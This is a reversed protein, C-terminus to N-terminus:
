EDKRVYYDEGSRQRKRLTRRVCLSKILHEALAHGASGEEAYPSQEDDVQQELKLAPPCNMYRKASSPPYVSHAAM